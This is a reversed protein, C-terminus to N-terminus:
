RAYVTHWSPMGAGIAAGFLAGVAGGLGLGIAGGAVMAAGSGYSGGYSDVAAGLLAGLVGAAGGVALAGRLAGQGASAGRMDIRDIDRWRLAQLGAVSELSPEARLGSLGITNAQSAYGHFCGFSGDIRLLRGADIRSLARQVEPRADADFASANSAATDNPARTTGAAVPATALTINAPAGNAVSDPAAPVGASDTRVTAPAAQAVVQREPVVPAVYLPRERIVRAGLYGGAIGGVLVGAFFYNRVKHPEDTSYGNPYAPLILGGLGGMVAGMIRGYTTRTTVVDIREVRSWPLPDSPPAARGHPSIGHLGRADLDEARCEFREAGNTVRLVQGSRHRRRMVELMTPEPATFGNAPASSEPAAALLLSLALSAIM